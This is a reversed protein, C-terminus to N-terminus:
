FGELMLNNIREITTAASTHLVGIGGAAVWPTISKERDDILIAKSHAYAAKDPSKPVCICEIGPYHEAYWEIKQTAADSPTTGCATLIKVSNFNTQLYEMLTDADDMKPLNRFFKEVHTDHYLLASWFHSKKVFDEVSKGFINKVHSDFSCIVGDSDVYIDFNRMVADRIFLIM